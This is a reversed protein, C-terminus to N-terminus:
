YREDKPVPIDYVEALSSWWEYANNFQEARVPRAFYWWGSIIIAVIYIVVLVTYAYDTAKERSLKTDGPQSGHGTSSPNRDKNFKQKEKSM